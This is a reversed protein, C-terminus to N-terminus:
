AAVIATRAAPNAADAFSARIDGRELDPVERQVDETTMDNAPMELLNQVRIRLGRICPEGGRKGPEITVRAVLDSM